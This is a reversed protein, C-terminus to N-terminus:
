LGAERWQVVAVGYGKFTLTTDGRYFTFEPLTQVGSLTVFNSASEVSLSGSAYFTPVAAKRTNTFTIVAEKETADYATYPGVSAGEQVMVNEFTGDNVNSSVYLGFVYVGTEEATFVCPEGSSSKAVLAGYLKDKYVYLLRSSLTYDASFIYQQGKRVPISFYVFSGGGEAGRTFSYGTETKTWAGDTTATGSDLNLLNSGSM